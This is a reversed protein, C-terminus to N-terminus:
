LTDVWLTTHKRKEKTILTQSSRLHLITFLEAIVSWIQDFQRGGGGFWRSPAIKLLFYLYNESKWQAVM